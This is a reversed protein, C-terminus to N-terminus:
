SNRRRSAARGSILAVVLLGVIPIIIETFEPIPVWPPTVMPYIDQPAPGSSTDIDYPLDVRGNVDADPSTWDSWYNGIGPSGAQYWQVNTTSVGNQAQIHSGDRVPGSGRNHDFTNNWVQGINSTAIRLGYDLNDAFLNKSVWIHDSNLISAGYYTNLSMNNGTLTIESCTYASVGAYTFNNLTNNLVNCYTSTDFQIGQQYGSYCSNNEITIRDAHNVDIASISVSGSGDSCNNRAILTDDCQYVMIGNNDFRCVNDEISCLNSYILAIACDSQDGSDCYNVNNSRITVNTCYGAQIGRTTNSISFGQVAMDSCNALIIQGAPVPVTASTLNRLYRVPLGNVTNTADISHSNWYSLVTSSFPNFAIGDDYMTNGSLTCYESASLRFGYNEGYGITCDTVVIRQCSGIEFPARDLDYLATVNDVTCDQCNYLTIGSGLNNSSNCDRVHVATSDQINFASSGAGSVSFTCNAVNVTDCTDIYIGSIDDYLYNWELITTDSDMLFIGHADNQICTNSSVILEHGNKVLIGASPWMGWTTFKCTNNIVWVLDCDELWIGANPCSLCQNDSITVNQFNWLVIGSIPNNSCNNGSITLNLWPYTLVSSGAAYIGYGGCGSCNNGLVRGNTANTLYIGNKCGVLYNSRIVFYATTNGVYIGDTSPDSMSYNEIIYPDGYTGSGNIVASGKLAVFDANSDVRIPTIPRYLISSDEPSPPSTMALFSSFLFLLSIGIAFIRIIRKSSSERVNADISPENDLSPMREMEFSNKRM